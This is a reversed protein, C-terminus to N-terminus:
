LAGADICVQDAPRNENAVSVVCLTNAYLDKFDDMDLRFGNDLGALAPDLRNVENELADVPFHTLGAVITLDVDRDFRIFTQAIPDGRNSSPVGAAVLSRQYISSDDAFIDQLEANVPYLDTIDEFEGGALAAAEAAEIPNADVFVRVEDQFPVLGKEHCNSCSVGARMVNDNQSLRDFLIPSEELRLGNEDFIIYAQLGNPLSFVAESGNAVQDFALPDAFISNGALDPDLDFSEYYYLGGVAQENRQILREQQSIESTTTGARVTIDQDLDAQLDIGLTAQLADRNDDLRLLGYYLNGFSAEDIIADSFMVPVLTNSLLQTNEAQDGQFEVAFNNNGIIAEWGDVFSEGNVVFPGQSDDLGYDRLDIRYISKSREADPVEVAQRVRPEQSISNIFKNLAFRDQELQQDCVGANYRDTLTVYRLFVRDEADARLLDSEIAEYVDDWTILQDNCTAAVEPARRLIFQEIQDIQTPTLRVEEGPPPMVTGDTRTIRSYLPSQAPNGPVIKGQAILENVDEIYCMGARCNGDEQAAEGHCKGCATQLLSEVYLDDLTPEQDQRPPTTPPALPTTGATGPDTATSTPVVPPNNDTDTDTDTDNPDDSGSCALALFAASIGITVARLNIVKGLQNKVSDELDKTRRM